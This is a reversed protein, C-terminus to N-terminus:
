INPYNLITFEIEEIWNILEEKKINFENSLGQNVTSNLLFSLENLKNKIEDSLNLTKEYNVDM